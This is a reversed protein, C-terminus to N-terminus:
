FQFSDNEFQLKIFTVIKDMDHKNIKERFCSDIVKSNSKQMLPYWEGPSELDDTKRPILHIHFHNVTQGASKGDQISMDFGTSNFIKLLREIIFCSYLMSEQKKEKSLELLSLVHKKPVIISHGPLIPAINYAAFFGESEHFISSRFSQDCFPCNITKNM